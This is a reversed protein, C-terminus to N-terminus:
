AGRQATALRQHGSSSHPHGSLGHCEWPYRGYKGGGVVGHGLPHPHQAQRMEQRAGKTM